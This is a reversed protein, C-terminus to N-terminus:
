TTPLPSLPERGNPNTSTLMGFYLQGALELAAVTATKEAESNGALNAHRRNQIASRLGALMLETERIGWSFNYVLPSLFLNKLASCVAGLEESSHSNVLAELQDKATFDDSGDRSHGAIDIANSIMHRSSESLEDNEGDIQDRIIQVYDNLTMNKGEKACDLFTPVIATTLGGLVGLIMGVVAADQSGFIYAVITALSGSSITVGFLKFLRAV